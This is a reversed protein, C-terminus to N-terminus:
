SSLEDFRILPNQRDTRGLYNLLEQQAHAPQYGSEPRFAERGVPETIDEPNAFVDVVQAKHPHLLAVHACAWQFWQDFIEVDDELVYGALNYMWFTRNRMNPDEDRAFLADMAIDIMKGLPGRIPGAWDDHEAEIYLIADGNLMFGWGAQVVHDVMPDADLKAFRAAIWEATALTLGLAAADSMEALYGKPPNWLYYDRAEWDSWAYVPRGRVALLSDIYGRLAM